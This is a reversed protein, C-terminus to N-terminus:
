IDELGHSHIFPKYRYNKKAAEWGAGELFDWFETGVVKRLVGYVQMLQIMAKQMRLLEVDKKGGLVHRARSAGGIFKKWEPDDIEVIDQTHALFIEPWDEVNNKRYHGLVAEAWDGMYRLEFRTYGRKDYICIYRPSHMSGLYLTSTGKNGKDDIDDGMRFDKFVYSRRILRNEVMWCLRAPSFPAYDIYIDLRTCHIRIGRKECEQYILAPIKPDMIDCSAGPIIMSVWDKDERGNDYAIKFGTEDGIV